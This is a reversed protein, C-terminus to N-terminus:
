NFVEHVNRYRTKTPYLSQNNFARTSGYLASNRNMRYYEPRELDERKILPYKYTTQYNMNRKFQPATNENAYLTSDIKKANVSSNGISSSSSCSRSETSALDASKCEPSIAKPFNTKKSNILEKM